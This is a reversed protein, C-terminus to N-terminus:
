VGVISALWAIGLFTLLVPSTLLGAFSLLMGFIGWIIQGSFLAIISALFALPVFIYGTTFIGALALGIAFYGAIPAADQPPPPTSNDQENNESPQLSLKIDSM